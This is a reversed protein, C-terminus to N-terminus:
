VLMEQLITMFLWAYAFDYWGIKSYSALFM